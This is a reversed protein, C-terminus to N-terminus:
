FWRKKKKKTTDEFAEIGGYGHAVEMSSRPQEQGPGYQQEQFHQQQQQQQQPPRPPQQYQQQQQQPPQQHQPYQQPQYLEPHQQQQYRRNNQRQRQQYRVEDSLQGESEEDEQDDDYGYGGYGGYGDDVGDNAAAPFGRQPAPTHRPGPDLPPPHPYKKEDWNGGYEEDDDDDDDDDYEDEGEEEEQVRKKKKSFMRKLFGKKVPEANPENRGEYWLAPVLLKYPTTTGMPDSPSVECNLTIDLGGELNVSDNNDDDDEEQKKDVSKRGLNTPRRHFNPRPPTPTRSSAPVNSQSQSRPHPLVDQSHASPFYSDSAEPPPPRTHADVSMRRRDQPDGFVASSSTPPPGRLSLRRLLGGPPADGRSFSFSRKPKEPPYDVPDPTM